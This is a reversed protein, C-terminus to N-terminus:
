SFFLCSFNSFAYDDIKVDTHIESQVVRTERQIRTQYWIDRMEIVNM